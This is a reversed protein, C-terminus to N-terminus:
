SRFGGRGKGFRGGGRRKLVRDLGGKREKVVEKGEGNLEITAKYGNQTGRAESAGGGKGWLRGPIAWMKEMTIGDGGKRSDLLDRRKEFQDM